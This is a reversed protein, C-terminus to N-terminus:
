VRMILQVYVCMSSGLLLLKGYDQVTVAAKTKKTYSEAFKIIIPVWKTQWEHKFYRLLFGKEKKLILEM